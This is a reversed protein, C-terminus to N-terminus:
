SVPHRRLRSRPPWLGSRILGPHDERGLQGAIARCPTRRDPFAFARVPERLRNWLCPNRRQCRRAWGFPPCRHRQVRATLFAPTAPTPLVDAPHNHGHGSGNRSRCPDRGRRGPRGTGPPGGAAAPGLPSPMRSPFVALGSMLCDSLGIGRTDVPDAIRHLCMRSGGTADRADVSAQAPFGQVNEQGAKAQKAAPHGIWRLPGRFFRASMGCFISLSLFCIGAPIASRCRNWRCSLCRVM